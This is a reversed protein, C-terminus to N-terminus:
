KVLLDNAYKQIFSKITTTKTDSAKKDPEYPNLAVSIRGAMIAFQIEQAQQPEVAVIIGNTDKGQGLNELVLVQGALLKSIIEKQATSSAKTQKPPPNTNAEAEPVTINFSGIIDVLDGPKVEGGCGTIGDLPIAFARLKGDKLDTLRAGLYSSTNNMLFSPQIAVGDPIISRTVKGVVLNENSTNNKAFEKPVKITKIDDNKIISFAPIEKAAAVVSVMNLYNSIGIFLIVAAACGLVIGVVIIKIHTNRKKIKSGQELAEM